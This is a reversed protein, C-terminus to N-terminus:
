FAMELVYKGFDKCRLFIDEAHSCNHSISFTCSSWKWYGDECSVNSLKIDLESQIQWKNGSTWATHSFYGMERCIADASNDSFGNDCVTGGNTILLGETEAGVINGSSDKLLFDSIEPYLPFLKNMM